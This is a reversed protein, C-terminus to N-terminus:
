RSLGVQALAARLLRARVDETLGALAEDAEARALMAAAEEKPIGRARLYFLADANLGGIACGHSARVNDHEIELDPRAELRASESLVIGKAQQDTAAADAIPPMVVRGHYIAHARGAALARMRIASETEPGEHLILVRADALRRGGAAILVGAHVRAKADLAALLETRAWGQGIEALHVALEAGEGVHAAVRAFQVGAEEAHVRLYALRAGRALRLETLALTAGQTAGATVEVFSAKADKPVEIVLRGKAAAEQTRLRVLVFREGDALGIRFSPAHQQETLVRSRWPDRAIALPAPAAKQAKGKVLVGDALVFDPAGGLIPVDKRWHAPKAAPRFWDEGLSAAIAAFDWARWGEDRRAPWAETHQAAM